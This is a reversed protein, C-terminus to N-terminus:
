AMTITHMPSVLDIIYTHIARSLDLGLKTIKFWFFFIGIFFSKM